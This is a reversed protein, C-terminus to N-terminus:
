PIYYLVIYLYVHKAHGKRNPYSKSRKGKEERGGGVIVNFLIELVINFLLMM